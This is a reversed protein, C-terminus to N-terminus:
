QPVTSSCKGHVGVADSSTHWSQEPCCDAGECSCTSVLHSLFMPRLASTNESCAWSHALQRLPETKMQPTEQHFECAVCAWTSYCVCLWYLFNWSTERWHNNPRYSNLLQIIFCVRVYACMWVRYSLDDSHHLGAQQQRWPSKQGCCCNGSISWLCQGWRTLSHSLSLSLSFNLLVHVCVSMSLCGCVSADVSRGVFACLAKAWAPSNVLWFRALVWAKMWRCLARKSKITEWGTKSKRERWGIECCTEVFLALQKFFSFFFEIWFSYGDPRIWLQIPVSM